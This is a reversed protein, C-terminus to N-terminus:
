RRYRRGKHEYFKDYFKKNLDRLNIPREYHQCDFYKEFQKVVEETKPPQIPNVIPCEQITFEYDEDETDIYGILVPNGNEDSWKKIDNIETLTLGIEKLQKTSCKNNHDKLWISFEEKTM